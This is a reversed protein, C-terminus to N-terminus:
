RKRAREHTVRVEQPQPKNDGRQVLLQVGFGFVTSFLWYLNLGSPFTYFIFLFFIPMMQSMM